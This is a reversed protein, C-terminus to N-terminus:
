EDGAIYFWSASTCSALFNFAECESTSNSFSFSDSSFNQLSLASASNSLSCSASNFDTWSASSNIAKFDTTLSIGPM